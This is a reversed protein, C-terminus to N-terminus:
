SCDCRVACESCVLTARESAPYRYMNDITWERQSWNNGKGAMTWEVTRETVWQIMRKTPREKTQENTWEDSRENILKNTRENMRKNTQENTRKRFMETREESQWDNREWLKSRSEVFNLCRVFIHSQGAVFRWPNAVFVELEQGWKRCPCVPKTHRPLRLIYKKPIFIKPHLGCFLLFNPRNCDECKRPFWGSFYDEM